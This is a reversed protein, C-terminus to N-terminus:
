EEYKYLIITNGEAKYSLKLPITVAQLAIHKNDHTFTGTFLKDTDIEKTIIKIGYSNQLEEIVYKLPVKIFSSENNIWSPNLSDFDDIVDIKNNIVRFSKGKSLKTTETNYNVAVLGEYCQVEFYNDRVKVNFQTGLVQIDGADTEVTFKQGKSVKFFAEGDLNLHRQKEWKKKNYSLTSVANLIVKSDDPLIITETQAFETSVTTATNFLTLFTVTLAVILIAAYKYYTKINLKRVKTKGTHKARFAILAEETNVKPAEMQASYHAIKDITKFNESQKLDQIEENSLENNLWKLINKEDKM